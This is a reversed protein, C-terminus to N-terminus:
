SLKPWILCVVRAFKVFIAGDDASNPYDVFQLFTKYATLYVSSVAYSIKGHGLM